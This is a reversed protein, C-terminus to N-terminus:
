NGKKRLRFEYNKTYPFRGGARPVEDYNIGNPERSPIEKPIQSEGSIGENPPNKGTRKKKFGGGDPNKKVGSM